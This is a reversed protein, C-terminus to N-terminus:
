NGKGAWGTGKFVIGPASYVKQMMEGCDCKPAAQDDVNAFVEVTIGCANCKFDYTPMIRRTIVHNAITLNAITAVWKKIIRKATINLNFKM